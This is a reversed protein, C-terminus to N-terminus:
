SHNSLSSRDDDPWWGFTASQTLWTHNASPLRVTPPLDLVAHYTSSTRADVQHFDSREGQNKASQREAVFVEQEARDILRLNEHQVGGRAQELHSFWAVATEHRVSGHDRSCRPRRNLIRPFPSLVRTTTIAQLRARCTRMPASLTRPIPLSIKCAHHM